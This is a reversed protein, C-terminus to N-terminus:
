KIKLNISLSYILKQIILIYSKIKSIDWYDVIKPRQSSITGLNLIIESKLGHIQIFNISKIM